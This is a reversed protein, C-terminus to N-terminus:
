SPVNPTKQSNTLRQLLAEIEHLRARAEDEAQKIEDTPAGSSVADEFQTVAVGFTRLLRRTEDSPM